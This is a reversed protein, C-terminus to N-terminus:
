DVSAELRWRYGLERSNCVQLDLQGGSVEVQVEFGSHEVNFHADKEVQVQKKEQM